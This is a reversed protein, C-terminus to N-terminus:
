YSGKVVHLNVDVPELFGPHCTYQGIDKSDVRSLKISSEYVNRSTSSTIPMVQWNSPLPSGDLSRPFVFLALKVISTFPGM